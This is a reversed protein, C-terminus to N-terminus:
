SSLHYVSPSDLRKRKRPTMIPDERVFDLGFSDYLPDPHDEFRFLSTNEENDPTTSSETFKSTHVTSSLEAQACIIEINM